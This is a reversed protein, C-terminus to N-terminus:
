VGESASRPKRMEDDIWAIDDALFEQGIIMIATSATTLTTLTEDSITGEALSRAADGLVYVGALMSKIDWVAREIMEDTILVEHQWVWWDLGDIWLLSGAVAREHLPPVDEHTVGEDYGDPADVAPYDPTQEWWSLQERSTVINAVLAAQEDEPLGLTALTEPLTEVELLQRTTATIQDPSFAPLAAEAAAFFGVDALHTELRWAAPTLDQYPTEGYDPVGSERLAPLTEFAEALAALERELLAADLSGTLRDEIARGRGGVGAQPLTSTGSRLDTLTPRDTTETSSVGLAKQFRHHNAESVVGYNYGEHPDTGYAM